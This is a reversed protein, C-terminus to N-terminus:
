SFSTVMGLSSVSIPTGANSFQALKPEILIGSSTVVISFETKRLQVARDDASNRPSAFVIPVPANSLQVLKCDRM